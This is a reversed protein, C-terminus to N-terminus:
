GQLRLRLSISHVTFVVQSMATCCLPPALSDAAPPPCGATVYAPCAYMVWTHQTPM